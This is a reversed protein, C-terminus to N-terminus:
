HHRGRDLFETPPVLDWDPLRVAIAHGSADRDPDSSAPRDPPRAPTPQPQPRFPILDPM